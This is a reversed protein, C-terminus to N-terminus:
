RSTVKDAEDSLAAMAQQQDKDTVEYKAHDWGQALKAIDSTLAPNDAAIAQQSLGLAAAFLIASFIRM